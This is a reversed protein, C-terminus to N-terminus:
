GDVLENKFVRFHEKLGFIYKIKRRLHKKVLEKVAKRQSLFM